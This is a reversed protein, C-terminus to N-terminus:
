LMVAAGLNVVFGLVELVASQNQCCGKKGM